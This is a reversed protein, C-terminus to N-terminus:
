KREETKMKSSKCVLKNKLMSNNEWYFQLELTSHQIGQGHKKKKKEPFVVSIHSNIISAIEHMMEEETKRHAM